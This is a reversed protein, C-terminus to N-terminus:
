SFCPELPRAPQNLSSVIPRFLAPWASGLQVVCRAIQPHRLLVAFSRCWLQRDRVLCGYTTLWMREVAPSWDIRGREVLPAVGMGSGLAWAIGEGTFPEVYGAADGLIFVRYGVPRATQRTLPITGCWLNAPPLGIEPLGAESLIAAVAKAPSGAQKLASPSIAAAVNLSGDEVRVLGAYGGRGIAMSITGPDVTEPGNDIRAGVGIKANRSVCSSFENSRNLASHGLGDAALVIQARITQVVGNPQCLHIERHDSGTAVDALKATVGPLFESGSDIAAQVLAADLAERSIAVGGPLDIAVNRQGCYARFYKTPVAGLTPLLDSLGALDLWSVARQNLCAGCVKPRPFYKREVILTRIERRALERAAMAGAPGAGIVVADWITTTAAEVDLTGRVTM